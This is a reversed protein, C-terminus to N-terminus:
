LNELKNGLTDVYNVPQCYKSKLKRTFEAKDMQNVLSYVFKNIRDEEKQGKIYDTYEDVKEHYQKDLFEIYEEISMNKLRNIEDVLKEFNNKGKKKKEPNNSHIYKEYENLKEEEIYSSDDNNIYDISIDKSENDGM